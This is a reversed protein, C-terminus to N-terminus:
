KAAQIGTIALSEAKAINWKSAYCLSAAGIADILFEDQYEITKKLNM